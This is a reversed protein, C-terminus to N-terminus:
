VKSVWWSRMGSRSSTGGGGGLTVLAEFAVRFADVLRVLPVFLVFTVNAGVGAGVGAV